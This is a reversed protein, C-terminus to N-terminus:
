DLFWFWLSFVGAVSLVCVFKKLPFVALVLFVMLMLLVGGIKRPVARLVAYFPLFYWEPVIHEPSILPNAFEFMEKELFVWLFFFSLLFFFFLSSLLLCFDKVLFFPSFKLGERKLHLPSSSHILHLFVVHAVVLFFILFPLLFHFSYFRFM